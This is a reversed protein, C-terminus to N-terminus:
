STAVSPPWSGGGGGLEVQATPVAYRQVQCTGGESRGRRSLETRAM